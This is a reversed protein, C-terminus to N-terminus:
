SDLRVASIDRKIKAAPEDVTERSPQPEKSKLFVRLVYCQEHVPFGREDTNCTKLDVAKGCMWCFFRAVVAM